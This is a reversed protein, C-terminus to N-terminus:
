KISMTKNWNDLFWMGTEVLKSTNYIYGLHPSGLTILTM